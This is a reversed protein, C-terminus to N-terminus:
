TSFKLWSPSCYVADWSLLVLSFSNFLLKQLQPWSSYCGQSIIESYIIPFPVNFFAENGVSSVHWGCVLTRLRIDACLLLFGPWLNQVKIALGPAKTEPQVSWRPARLQEMWSLIRWLMTAEQGRGHSRKRGFNGSWRESGKKWGLATSRGLAQRARRIEIGVSVIHCVWDSEMKLNSAM